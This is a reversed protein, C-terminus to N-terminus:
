KLLTNISRNIYAHTQGGYPTTQIPTRKPGWGKKKLIIPRLEGASKLFFIITGRGSNIKSRERDKKRSRAHSSQMMLNLSSFLGFLVFTCHRLLCFVLGGFKQQACYELMRRRMFVVPCLLLCVGFTGVPEV